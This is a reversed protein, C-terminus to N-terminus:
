WEAPVLHRFNEAELLRGKTTPINKKALEAFDEGNIAKEYIENIKEEARKLEEETADKKTRVMIHAVKIKGRSPRKDTVKVLHYGFQTRVPM